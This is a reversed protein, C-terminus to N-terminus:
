RLTKRLEKLLTQQEPTLEEPTKIGVVVYLDGFQGNPRQVGEGRVCLRDGSRTGPPVTLRCTGDLTSVKVRGGLSATIMDIWAHTELDHRIRRFQPHPKVRVVLDLHGRPGLNRGPRGLGALRIRSGGHVGPPIEVRVQRERLTYGQGQCRPCIARIITGRGQCWPCIRPVRNAGQRVSIEGGGECARCLRIASRQRAGSGCCHPCLSDQQIRIQTTGGRIALEFPLSIRHTVDEGPAPVGWM